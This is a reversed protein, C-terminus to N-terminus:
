RRLLAFIGRRGVQNRQQREDRHSEHRAHEGIPDIKKVTKTDDGRSKREIEIAAAIGADAGVERDCGDRCPRDDGDRPYREPRFFGSAPACRPPHMGSPDEPENAIHATNRVTPETTNTGM